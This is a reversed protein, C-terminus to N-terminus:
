LVFDIYLSFCHTYLSVSYQWFMDMFCCPDRQQRIGAKCHVNMEKEWMSLILLSSKQYSQVEIGWSGWDVVVYKPMNPFQSLLRIFLIFRWLHDRISLVHLSSHWVTFGVFSAELNLDPPVKAKITNTEQFSRSVEFDSIFIVYQSRDVDFSTHFEERAQKAIAPDSSHWSTRKLQASRM